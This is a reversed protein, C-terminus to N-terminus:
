RIYLLNGLAFLLLGPDMELTYPTAWNKILIYSSFASFLVMGFVWNPVFILTIVVLVALVSLLVWRLVTWHIVQPITRLGNPDTDRDHVDSAIALFCFVLFLVFANSSFTMGKIGTIASIMFLTWSSAILLTKLRPIGRFWPYIVSLIVAFLFPFFISRNMTGMYVLVVGGLFLYGLMFMSKRPLFYYFFVAFGLMVAYWLESTKDLSYALLFSSFGLLVQQLKFPM